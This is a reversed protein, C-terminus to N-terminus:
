SIMALRAERAPRELISIHDPLALIEDAEAGYLERLVSGTLGASPGDYIVRGGRLAITRPCYKLAVNVQHLSVLVTCRDERNVRALIEMVRRSSEPDLSAIPEDALVVKAGQVLTRAIAARQQQGGSLTSARQAAQEAIGVRALAEIGAKIEEGTFFRPLSRWLPMRHLHGTLVNVLLPLRGVLNFQQFIVGIGARLRRVQRSIRGDKQVSEGGVQVEGAEAAVLGAIHRLLTSKGSGSAGILAVMEGPMVEINVADLASREGFRKSLGTVRIAPELAM